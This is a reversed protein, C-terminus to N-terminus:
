DILRERSYLYSDISKDKVQYINIKEKNESKESSNEM